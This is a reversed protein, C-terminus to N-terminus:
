NAADKCVSVKFVHLVKDRLKYIHGCSRHSVNRFSLKSFMQSLEQSFPEKLMPPWHLSLRAQAGHLRVLAKASRESFVHIHFWLFSCVFLWMEPWLSHSYLTYKFSYLGCLALNGKEWKYGRFMPLSYAPFRGSEFPELYLLRYPIFKDPCMQEPLLLLYKKKQLHLLNKKFKSRKHPSPVGSSGQDCTKTFSQWEVYWWYIFRIRIDNHQIDNSWYHFSTVAFEVLLETYQTGALSIM